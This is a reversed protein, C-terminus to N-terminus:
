TRWNPKRNDAHSDADYGIRSRADTLEALQRRLEGGYDESQLQADIQRLESQVSELAAGAEQAKVRQSELAGMRQQLAPLDKLQLAWDDLQAQGSRSEDDLKRIDENCVRYAERKSDREETLEALVQDRHDATLDGEVSRALRAM